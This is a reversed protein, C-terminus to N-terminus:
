VLFSMAGNFVSTDYNVAEVTVTNEGSPKAATVVFDRVLNAATGFAFSTYEYENDINITTPAAGPLVVVNPQSGMTVMIPDTAEGLPTRLMIYKAGGSWDLDHDVFLRNESVAIVLGSDGWKPVNHSIGIRDGMQLLLGELETDFSITKRQKRTRQWTLRAYQQAHTADTVGELLFRDPQDADAPFISYVQRFDKPDLYEVEVGDAAGEEDFSYNVTMSGSVINADTFMMSRVPKVGDQAVSMMSGLPLPEAAFPITITRLAEWVTTRERFVHNFKYGSWKSRLNTLTDVDLESRGRAAGYITNLYVDAFADAANDSTVEDGGRPPSLLRTAKVRLRVSADQGLGQSAKIRCALLTVDGYVAAATYDAYLKLGAWIFRDTGNKANPAATIRTVKVAWRASKPATVMYSRRLPATIATKNKEYSNAIRITTTEPGSIMAGSVTSADVVVSRVAGVQVDADNVEIYDVRFQIYRGKLDGDNNDPDFCGGPFVIDLQFKSGKMGPKCTTFYGATDNAEAFEQNSVEPSTVVNEHFGGGMAVSISGMQSRHQAPRFANWQVVGADITQTRTDGVYVDTVNIDGQGVCMVFDLYQVGNYPQGWSSQDWMYWTYPQSIYDPSTLVTGYVVPIAGGVRAANQDSAIDFTSVRGGTQKSSEKPMFARMAFYSAAALVASILLSVGLTTLSVPEAPMLAIIAVDDDTVEYDLDDLPKETGNVYFRIPMGFGDPYESQLWDIVPTGADLPYIERTHPTLPNRLLVLAAM